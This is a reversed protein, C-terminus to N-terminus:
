PRVEINIYLANLRNYDAVDGGRYVIKIREKGTFGAVPKYQYILYSSAPSSILESIDANQPEKDIKSSKIDFAFGLYHTFSESSNIFTSLETVSIGEM